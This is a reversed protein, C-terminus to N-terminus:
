KRGLRELALTLTTHLRAYIRAEDAKLGQPASEFDGRSLSDFAKLLQAYSGTALRAALFAMLLGLIAGFAAAVLILREMRKFHSDIAKQQVNLLNKEHENPKFAVLYLGDATPKVIMTYDRGKITTTQANKLAKMLPEARDLLGPIQPLLQGQHADVTASEVRLSAPEILVVEALAPPLKLGSLKRGDLDNMAWSLLEANNSYLGDELPRLNLQSSANRTELLLAASIGAVLALATLLTIIFTKTKM